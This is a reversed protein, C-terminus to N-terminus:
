IYHIHTTHTLTHARHTRERACHTHTRHTHTHILTHPTHPHTHILTQTQIPWPIIKVQNFAHVVIDLRMEKVSLKGLLRSQHGVIELLRNKRHRPQQSTTVLM